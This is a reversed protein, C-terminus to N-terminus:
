CMLIYVKCEQTILSDIHNMKTGDSACRRFGPEQVGRHVNPGQQFISPRGCDPGVLFILKTDTVVIETYM